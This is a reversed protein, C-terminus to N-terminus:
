YKEYLVRLIEERFTQTNDRVARVHALVRNLDTSVWVTPVARSVASLVDDSISTLRGLFEDVILPTVKGRLHKYFLHGTAFYCDRLQWPDRTSYSDGLVPYFALEHDYLTFGRADALLNPHEPRRDPNQVLMDFLYVDAAQSIMQEGVYYDSAAHQGHDCLRSGFHRPRRSDFEVRYPEPILHVTPIMVVAPDAVPIHMAQALLATVFECQRGRFTMEEFPCIKVVFEGTECGVDCPDGYVHRKSGFCRLVLPKNRGSLMRSMYADAEVEWYNVATVREIVNRL